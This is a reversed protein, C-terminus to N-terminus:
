STQFQRCRKREANSRLRRLVGSLLDAHRRELHACVRVADALRGPRERLHLVARGDDDVGEGGFDDVGVGAVEHREHLLERAGGVRAEAEFAFRGLFGRLFDGSM